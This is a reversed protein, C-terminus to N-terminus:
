ARQPFSLTAPDIKPVLGEQAARGLLANIAAYGTEGLNATYENVYLNIHAQAVEADLEQAHRLV